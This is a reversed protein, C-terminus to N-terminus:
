DAALLHRCGLLANSAERIMFNVLTASVGLKTGIDRQTLGSIRYLEFAHRTREPLASLTDSVVRLNQRSIAIQEPTGSAAPVDLGDDEVTFLHREMQHRRKHDIALNRVVQYCYALPHRIELCAEADCVKLYADQAIDEALARNEVIKQAAVRLASWHTVFCTGAGQREETTSLNSERACTKDQAKYILNIRM